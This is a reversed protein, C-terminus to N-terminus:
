PLPQHRGRSGGMIWRLGRVYIEGRVELLRASWLKVNENLRERQKSLKSQIKTLRAEITEADEGIPNNITYANRELDSIEIKM